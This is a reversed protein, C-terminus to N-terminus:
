DYKWRSHYNVFASTSTNTSLFANAAAPLPFASLRAAAFLPASATSLSSLCRVSLLTTSSVFLLTTSHDRYAHCTNAHHHSNSSAGERESSPQQSLKSLQESSSSHEDDSAHFSVFPVMTVMCSQPFSGIRTSVTFWLGGDEDLHIHRQSLSNGRGASLRSKAERKRASVCCLASLRLAAVLSSKM